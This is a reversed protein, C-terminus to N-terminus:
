EASRTLYEDVRRLYAPFDRMVAQLAEHVRRPDLEDYEHVIRNRLGAYAALRRAFDHDLVGLRGLQAFSEHYDAPPPHATETILHYNVDIMRGIARELYREVLIEDFESALYAELDKAAIPQLATLDRTILLMKRTVLERDIV